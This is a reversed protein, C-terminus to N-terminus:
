APLEAGLGLVRAARARFSQWERAARAQFEEFERATRGQMDDFEVQLLAMRQAQTLGGQTPPALPAAPATAVAPASLRHAGTGPAAPLAVVEDGQVSWLPEKRGQRSNARSGGQCVTGRSEQARLIGAVAAVSLGAYCERPHGQMMSTTGMQELLDAATCEGAQQLCYRALQAHYARLEEAPIM